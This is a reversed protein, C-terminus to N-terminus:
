QTVRAQFLNAAVKSCVRVPGVPLLWLLTSKNSWVLKTSSSLHWWSLRGTHAYFSKFKIGKGDKMLNYSKSKYNSTRAIFINITNKKWWIHPMVKSMRGPWAQSNSMRWNLYFERAKNGTITYPTCMKAREVLPLPLCSFFLIFNSCM